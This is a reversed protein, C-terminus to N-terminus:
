QKLGHGAGILDSVRGKRPVFLMRKEHAQNDGNDGHHRYQHRHGVADRTRWESLIEASNKFLSPLSLRAAISVSVL